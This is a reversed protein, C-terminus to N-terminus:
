HAVLPYDGPREISSLELDVDLRPWRLYHGHCVEVEYIEGLRADKFWPFNETPLFYEHGLALLWVGRPSVNLVEVESTSTGPASSNM